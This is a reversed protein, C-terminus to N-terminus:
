RSKHSSWSTALYIGTPVFTGADSIGLWGHSHSGKTELLNALLTKVKNGNSDYIQISVEAEKLLSYKLSTNRKYSDFCDPTFRLNTIINPRLPNVGCSACFLFQIFLLILILRKKVHMKGVM